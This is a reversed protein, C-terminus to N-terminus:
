RHHFVVNSLRGACVANNVLQVKLAKARYRGGKNTLPARFSGNTGTSTTTIWRWAGRHFRKIVVPVHRLCADYGDNVSVNGTAFLRARTSARGLFLSISRPHVGGTVTFDGPSTATGAPTTLTVRGTTAGNPVVADVRTSTVFSFSASRGNFKVSTVGGFGSGNITVSTGVSGNNPSLTLIKPGTVTFNGTSTATGSSATVTIKGTTAGSPVNTTIRTSSAVNFTAATGNFRVASVNVFGSGNITVFTGVNGNNPSMSFIKPGTVTFNANSTGTGGPTTVSIQGTTAGSPVTTQINGPAVLTFPTASTGNFRVVTVGTFNSGFIHVTTGVPGSNPNFNNVAPVAPTTVNFNSGTVDSGGSTMVSIPGDTAGAPVDATIQTDMVVNFSADVGNFEVRFAGTFNSGNITVHTGIPGSSPFFGSISPPTGAAVPLATIAVVLAVVVASAGIRTFARTAVSTRSM